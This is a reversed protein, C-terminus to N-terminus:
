CNSPLEPKMMFNSADVLKQLGFQDVPITPPGVGRGHVQDEWFPQDGFFPVIATPCTAKLGAATMGAGGHHVVASSGIMPATTLYIYLIKPKALTRLGGWGKNIIRRPRAIELAKVIIKTMKGLDQVPKLSYDKSRKLRKKWHIM